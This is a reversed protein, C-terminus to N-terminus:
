LRYRSEFVLGIINGLGYGLYTPVHVFGRVALGFCTLQLNTESLGSLSQVHNWGGVLVPLTM